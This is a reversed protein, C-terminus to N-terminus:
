LQLKEWRFEEKVTPFVPKELGRKEEKGTDKGYHFM